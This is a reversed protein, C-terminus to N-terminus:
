RLINNIKNYIVRDNDEDFRIIGFEIGTQKAAENRSIGTESLQKLLYNRGLLRVHRPQIANSGLQLEVENWVRSIKAKIPPYSTAGGTKTSPFLYPSDMLTQKWKVNDPYRDDILSHIFKYERKNIKIVRPYERRITIGKPTIDKKRLHRLEDKDDNNSLLVGIFLLYLAVGAERSSLQVCIDFWEDLEISANDNYHHGKFISLPSVDMKFYLCFRVWGRGTTLIRGIVTSQGLQEYERLMYELEERSFKEFGKDFLNEYSAVNEFAVKRITLTGFALDSEFYQKMLWYMKLEKNYSVNNLNFPVMSRNVLLIYWGDERFHQKYIQYRRQCEKSTVNKQTVPELGFSKNCILFDTKEDMM